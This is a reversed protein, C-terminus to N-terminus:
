GGRTEFFGRGELVSEELFFQLLVPYKCLKSFHRESTLFSRSVRESCMCVGTQSVRIVSALNRCVRMTYSVCVYGPRPDLVISSPETVNETVLPARFRGDASAVEIRHLRFDTWYINKTIWDLAMSRVSSFGGDIVQGFVAAAPEKIFHSLRVCSLIFSFLVCYFFYM